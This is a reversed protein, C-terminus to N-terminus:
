RLLHVLLERVDDDVRRDGVNPGYPDFQEVFLNVRRAPEFGLQEDEYFIQRVQLAHKLVVQRRRGGEDGLVVSWGNEVAHVFADRLRGTREFHQIAAAHVDQVFGGSKRECQALQVRWCPAGIGLSEVFEEAFAVAPDTLVSHLRPVVGRM